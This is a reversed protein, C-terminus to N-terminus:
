AGRTKKRTGYDVMKFEFGALRTFLDEVTELLDALHPSQRDIEQKKLDNCLQQCLRTALRIRETNLFAVLDTNSEGEEEQEFAKQLAWSTSRVQGVAQRFERFIGPDVASLKMSEEIKYLEKTAAQLRKSVESVKKRQKPTEEEGALEAIKAHLALKDEPTRFETFRVGMGKAPHCSRVAGFANIRLGDLQILLETRTGVEFPAFSKLYCGGRSLNQLEASASRHDPVTILDVSASAEYRPQSRTSVVEKKKPPDYPDQIEDSELTTGWVDKAPDLAKVGAMFDNGSKRVWAISFRAKRHHYQIDLEEGAVLEAVIGGIRAGSHSIDITHAMAVFRNGRSDMGGLRVPLVTRM